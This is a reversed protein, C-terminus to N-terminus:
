YILTLQLNNGHLHLHPHPHCGREGQRGEGERASQQPQDSMTPITSASLSTTLTPIPVATPSDAREEKWDASVRFSTTVLSNNKVAGGRVTHACVWHYIDGCVGGPSGATTTTTAVRHQLIPVMAYVRVYYPFRRSM